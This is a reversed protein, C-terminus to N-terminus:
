CPLLVMSVAGEGWCSPGRQWGSPGVGQAERGQSPRFPPGVGAGTSSCHPNQEMEEAAPRTGDLGLEFM